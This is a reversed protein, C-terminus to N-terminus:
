RFIISGKTKHVSVFLDSSDLENFLDTTSKTALDMAIDREIGYNDRIDPMLMDICNGEIMLYEYNNKDLWSKIDSASINFGSENYVESRFQIVEECWPCADMDYALVEHDGFKRRHCFYYVKTDKPLSDLFTYSDFQGYKIMANDPAWQVTNLKYKQYGSTAFVLPLVILLIIFLPVGVKKGFKFLFWLGETAIIALPICVLTWFRFSFLAIPLVTGGFLGAFTFVFLLLTILPVTQKKPNLSKYNFLTAILGIAFLLSIVIGWGVPNTILNQSKAMFFDNFYYMRTASGLPGIFTNSTQSGQGEFVIGQDGREGFFMDVPNGYKVFMPGWWLLSVVAAIGLVILYQKWLKKNTFLTVGAIILFM